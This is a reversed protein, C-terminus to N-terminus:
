AVLCDDVTEYGQLAAARQAGDRCLRRFETATEDVFASPDDDRMAVSLSRPHQQQQQRPQVSEM